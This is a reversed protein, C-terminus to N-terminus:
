EQIMLYGRNTKVLANGTVNSIIKKFEAASTIKQTNIQTIIDNVKIGAREAQTAAEVDTVIVGQNNELNFMSAFNDDIQSVKFGRWAKALLDEKLPQEAESVEAVTNERSQKPEPNNIPKPPLSTTVVLEESSPVKGMKIRLTRPLGNRIIKIKIDDNAKTKAVQKLFDLTNNIQNGNFKVIIDENELGAKAAASDPFVKIILVGDAKTLKFYDALVSNLEQVELGLWGYLVEEGKLLKDLIVKADNIPIAFGIGASGANSNFIGANIGIVQGQINLLPGGSNGPNIAADTQILDLYARGRSATSPLARHLASIVGFSIIPKPNQAAFGFPNGVAIAWQGPRVADSDGMLAFALDDAEIKIIALDSRYDSGKLVADFKRGDSLTVKIEEAGSIVHENTLIYGRQDIIVGSGLGLQQRDRNPTDGYFFDKFFAEFLDDRSGRMYSTGRSTRQTSISVVTKGAYEAVDTIAKEIELVAAPVNIAWVRSISSLCFVAAAFVQILLKLKSKNKKM